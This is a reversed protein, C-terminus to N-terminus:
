FCDKSDHEDGGIDTATTVAAPTEGTTPGETLVKNGAFRMHSQRYNFRAERVLKIQQNNTQDKLTAARMESIPARHGGGGGFIM